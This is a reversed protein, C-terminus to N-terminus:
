AAETQASQQANGVGLRVVTIPGQTVKDTQQANIQYRVEDIGFPLGSDTFAKDTVTAIVSYATETALQRSVIYFTGQPGRGKWKLELAGNPLLTTGVDSPADPAPTEGPPAKPSLDALVYVQPDDSSAAFAKVTLILDRAGEIATDAKDYYNQTASKSAARAAGAATRATDAQATASALAAVDAADVGIAAANETWTALRDTIWDLANGRQTPLNRGM